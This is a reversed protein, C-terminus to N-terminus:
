SYRSQYIYNSKVYNLIVAWEKETLQCKMSYRLLERIQPIQYVYETLDRSLEPPQKNEAALDYLQYREDISLKLVDTMNELVKFSPSPRNGNEFGSLYTPSINWLKAATKANLNRELRKEKLFEGFKM